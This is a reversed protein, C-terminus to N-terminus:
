AKVRSKVLSLIKDFKKGKGVGKIFQLTEVFRKEGREKYIQEFIELISGKLNWPQQRLANECYMKIKRTTERGIGRLRVLPVEEATVGFRIRDKFDKFDDPIDISKKRALKEYVTLLRSLERGVEPCQSAYVKYKVEIETLDLNEIWGCFIAYASYEPSKQDSAHIGHNEYFETIEESKERPYKSLCAGKFLISILHIISLDTRVKQDDDLFKNLAEFPALPYNAFTGFLFSVTVEGLGSLKYGGAGIPSIFGRKYLYEVHGKLTDFLDFKIFEVKKRESQFNFFTNRFFELIEEDKCKQSYILELITKRFYDDHGVVSTAKEIVGEQYKAVDAGKRKVIYAYGESGLGSRGARGAMQIYM